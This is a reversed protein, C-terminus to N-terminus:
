VFGAKLRKKNVSTGQLRDILEVVFGSGLPLAVQRGTLVLGCLLFGEGVGAITPDLIEQVLGATQDDVPQQSLADAGQHDAVVGTPFLLDVQPSLRVLCEDGDRVGLEHRHDGVLGFQDANPDDQLFLVMGGLAGKQIGLRDFVSGGVQTPSEMTTQEAGSVAAQDVGIDIGGQIDDFFRDRVGKTPSQRADGHARYPDLDENAGSCVEGSQALMQKANEKSHSSKM